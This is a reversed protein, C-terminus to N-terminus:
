EYVTESPILVASFGEESVSVRDGELLLLNRFDSPDYWEDSDLYYEQGYGEADVVVLVGENELAQVDYVGPEIETGVEIEESTVMIEQTLPNEKPTKMQETQGNETKFVLTGAGNITLVAGQYLRIDDIEYTGEETQYDSLWWSNYFYNEVEDVVSFWVNEADEGATVTYRGEPLQCGTTYQGSTLSIEFTEGEESLERVMNEYIDMPLEQVEVAEEIDYTVYNEAEVPSDEFVGSENLFSLLIFLIVMGMMLLGGTTKKEVTSKRNASTRYTSAPASQRNVSKQQKKGAETQKRATTQKRVTTEQKKASAAKWTEGSNRKTDTKVAEEYETNQVDKNEAATSEPRRENLYYRGRMSKFYMGCSQCRGNAVKGGCLSCRNQM